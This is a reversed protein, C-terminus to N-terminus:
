RSQRKWRGHMHNSRIKLHFWVWPPAFCWCHRIGNFDSTSYHLVKKSIETLVSRIQMCGPFIVAVQGNYAVKPCLDQQFTISSCGFFEPARWYTKFWIKTRLDSFISMNIENEPIDAEFEMGIQDTNVTADFFTKGSDLHKSLYWGGKEELTM